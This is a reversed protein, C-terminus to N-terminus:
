GFTVWDKIGTHPYERTYKYYLIHPGRHGTGWVEETPTNTSVGNDEIVVSVALEHGRAYNMFEHFIGTKATMDGIFMWVREDSIGLRKNALAVGLAIPLIGGVIASAVIKRKADNFFMSRGAVIEAFLEDEPVGKLLAHYHSRWTTFLWDNDNVEKFIDLLDDENNKSLHIPARIQAAGFAEAIRTEFDIMSQKTVTALASTM